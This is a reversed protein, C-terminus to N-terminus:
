VRGKSVTLESANMEKGSKLNFHSNKSSYRGHPSIIKYEKERTLEVYIDGELKIINEELNITVDSNKNVWIKTGDKLSIQQKQNEASIHLTQDKSSTIWFVLLLVFVAAASSLWYVITKQRTRYKRQYQEWGKDVSWNVNGPLEKMEELKERIDQDIKNYSMKTCKKSKEKCNM